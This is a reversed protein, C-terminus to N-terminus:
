FEFPCVRVPVVKDVRIPVVKEVRIPVVKEAGIPVVKEAKIPVVKEVKIPVLHAGCKEVQIRVMTKDTIPMVKNSKMPFWMKKM